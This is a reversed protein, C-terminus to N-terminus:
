AADICVELSDRGVAQFALSIAVPIKCPICSIVFDGKGKLTGTDLLHSLIPKNRCITNSFCIEVKGIDKTLNASGANRVPACTEFQEDNSRDTSGTQKTMM